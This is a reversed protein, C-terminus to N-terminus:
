DRALVISLQVLVSNERGMDAFEENRYEFKLSAYPRVDFRVGATVGKYNLSLPALLPDEADVEIREARVYPKFREMNGRLRYAFQAYFSDAGGSPGAGSTLEHDSHTYEAIFEPTERELAFYASYIREDVEPGVLPSVRDSYAGIGADLGKISPPKYFVSAVWARKGNIDGADGARAINAHRGNGAGVNYGLGSHEGSFQGEFLMGVFHIPILQSGFKVSEPRSITTQLWAGHHFATNWYGIPTHYRGASLSNRSSFDHKIILREIEISYETDHATLSVESFLNLREGIPAIVHAVAQGLSFGEKGRLDTNDYDFDAFGIVRFPSGGLPPTEIQEEQATALQAGALWCVLAALLRLHGYRESDARAHGAIALAGSSVGPASVTPM